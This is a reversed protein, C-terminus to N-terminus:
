IPGSSLPRLTTLCARILSKAEPMVTSIPPSLPSIYDKVAAFGVDDAGLGLVFERIAEKV